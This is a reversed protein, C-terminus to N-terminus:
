ALLARHAEHWIAPNSAALLGCRGDWPRYASGDVRGVCGGAETLFLAGPAHDWPLTRWYLAFHPAGRVVAPYESGACGTGSLVEALSLSRRLVSHSLAAPLFRTLVAGRLRSTGPSVASTRVREGDMFAGAGQEAFAMHSGLPDFMWSCVTEGERLLAIMCAFPGLGAAFNGTGDLPDVLWVDGDSLARLLSLDASAAEEGVVRSGPLLAELERTLRAEVKRDVTTVIEGPAKECVEHQALRRFSPMIMRSAVDRVIEEVREILTAPLPDRYARTVAESTKDIM